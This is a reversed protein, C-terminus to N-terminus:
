QHPQHPVCHPCLRRGRRTEDGPRTASGAVQRGAGCLHDFDGCDPDPPPGGTPGSGVVRPNCPRLVAAVTAEVQLWPQRSKMGRVMGRPGRATGPECPQRRRGPRMGGRDVRCMVEVPTAGSSRPATLVAATEGGGARDIAPAPRRVPRARRTWPRQSSRTTKTPASCGPSGTTLAVCSVASCHSSM